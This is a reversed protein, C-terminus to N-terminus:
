VGIEAQQGGVLLDALVRRAQEIKQGAIRLLVLILRRSTAGSFRRSRSISSIRRSVFFLSAPLCARIM